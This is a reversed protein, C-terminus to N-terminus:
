APLGTAPYCAHRANGAPDFRLDIATYTDPTPDIEFGVPIKWAADFTVLRGGTGDQIIFLALRCDTAGAPAALTVPGTLTLHQHAGNACNVTVTAAYPIVYGPEAGGTGGSGASAGTIKWDGM